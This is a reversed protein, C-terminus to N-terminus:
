HYRWNQFLLRELIKQLYEQSTQVYTGFIKLNRIHRATQENGWKMVPILNVTSIELESHAPKRFKEQSMGPIDTCLNWFHQIEQIHTLRNM